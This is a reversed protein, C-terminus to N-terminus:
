EGSKKAQVWSHISFKGSSDYLVMYDGDPRGVTSKFEEPLGKSFNHSFQKAITTSHIQIRLNGVRHIKISM